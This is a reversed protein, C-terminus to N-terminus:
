GPDLRGMRAELGARGREVMRRLREVTAAAARLGGPPPPVPAEDEKGAPGYSYAAWALVPDAALAIGRRAAFHTVADGRRPRTTGELLLAATCLRVVDDRARRAAAALDGAAAHDAFERSGEAVRALLNATCWLADAPTFPARPTPAGPPWLPVGDDLADVLMPTRFGPDLDPLSVTWTQVPIGTAAAVQDGIEEAMGAQPERDPPLARFILLVDLDSDPRAEGRARSGFLIARVLDAPVERRVREVLLLAARHQPPTLLREAPASM